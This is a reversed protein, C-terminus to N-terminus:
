VRETRHNRSACNAFRSCHSFRLCTGPSRVTLHHIAPATPPACVRLPVGASVSQLCSLLGAASCIQAAAPRDAYPFYHNDQRRSFPPM